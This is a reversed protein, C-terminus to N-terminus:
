AGQTPVYFATTAAVNAEVVAPDTGAARQAEGWARASAVNFERVAPDQDLDEVAPLEGGTLHLALGLLAGDWGVGVAGPGFQDWMEPPTQARHTLTLVTGAPGDAAEELRVEVLSADEPGTPGMEWTVLLRHHPECARVVGGANGTFAFRGGPTLDGEVPLFWRQLRDPDTLADWLEEPTSAYRRSLTVVQAPGTPVSGEGVSRDVLALEQLLDKM